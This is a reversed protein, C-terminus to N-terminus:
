PTNEGVTTGVTKGMLRELERHAGLAEDLLELAIHQAEAAARVTDLLDTLPVEGLHYARTVAVM